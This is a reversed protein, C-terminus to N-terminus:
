QIESDLRAMGFLWAYGGIRDGPAFRKPGASEHAYMTLRLPFDNPTALVLTYALLPVGWFEVDNVEEVRSEFKIEDVGGEEEPTLPLYACFDDSFEETAEGEFVKYALGNILFTLPVDQRYTDRYKFFCTDFFGVRAGNCSGVIQAEHGEPWVYVEKVEIPWGYGTDEYPYAAVIDRGHLLFSMMLDGRADIVQCYDGHNLGAGSEGSLIQNIIEAVADHPDGSDELFYFHRGHGYYGIPEKQVPLTEGVSEQETGGEQRKSWDKIGM